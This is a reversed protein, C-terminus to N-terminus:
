IHITQDAGFVKVGKMVQQLRFHTFGLSDKEEKIIRFHSKVNNQIKLLAKKSTLYTWVLEHKNKIKSNSWQESMFLPTKYKEDFLIQPPKPEAYAPLNLLALLLSLVVSLSIFKRKKMIIGRKRYQCLYLM